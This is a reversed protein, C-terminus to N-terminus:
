LPHLRLIGTGQISNLNTGDANIQLLGANTVAGGNTYTDIDDIDTQLTGNSAIDIATATILGGTHNSFTGSTINVASQTIDAYNTLNSEAGNYTL